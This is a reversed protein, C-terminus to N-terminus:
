LSDIFDLEGQLAKEVIERLADEVREAVASPDEKSEKDESVHQRVYDTLDIATALLGNDLCEM